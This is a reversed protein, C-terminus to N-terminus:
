FLADADADEDEEGSSRTPNFVNIKELIFEAYPETLRRVNRRSFPVEKGERTYLTWSKIGRDLISLNMKGLVVESKVTTDQKIKDGKKGKWDASLKMYEGSLAQRDAYSFKKITVEEGDKFFPAVITEVDQTDIFAHIEETM